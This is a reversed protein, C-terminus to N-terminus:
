SIIQNVDTVVIDHGGAAKVQPIVLPLEVRLVAARVAYGADGFLPAVTPKQMAPLVGIVQDLQEASVNVEVMLRQRGDLVANLVLKLDEIRKRKAPTEIAARSAYLRTSSKMLEDVITLRNERLTAGTATNDVIVDADEPPFVETAGNSKVFQFDLSQDSFWNKALNEYESAVVLKQNPLKGDAVLDNPAAVVLQVPDLGTDLIEVLDFDPDNLKLESVWDAGAFGLDRSGQNLMEVINQPKLIKTEINELSLTPRYGRDTASISIGADQLLSFVGKQMRGKPLAIRLPIDNSDNM